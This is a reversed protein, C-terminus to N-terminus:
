EGSAEAWCILLALIRAEHQEISHNGHEGWHVNRFTFFPFLYDLLDWEPWNCHVAWMASCVGHGYRGESTVPERDSLWEAAHLFIEPRINM